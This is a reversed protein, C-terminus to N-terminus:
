AAGASPAAEILRGERLLAEAMRDLQSAISADVYGGRTALVCGGRALQPDDQLRVETSHGIAECIEPMIRQVLARDQPHVTIQLSTPRTVLRLANLLQDRVISSDARLLRHTIREALAFAFKLVDERAEDHMRQRSAEWELLAAHWREALAAAEGRAQQLAEERGARIGAERGEELGRAYGAARGMEDARATMARARHDAEGLTAAARDHAESLVRQAHAEVDGMELVVASRLTSGSQGPKMVPM